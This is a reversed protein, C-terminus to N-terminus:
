LHELPYLDGTKQEKGNIDIYTCYIKGQSLGLLQPFDLDMSKQFDQTVMSEKKLTIKSQGYPVSEGSGLVKHIKTEERYIKNPLEKYYWELVVKEVLVSLSGKNCIVPIYSKSSTGPSTTVQEVVIFPAVRLEFERTMIKAMKRTYVAYYITVIVLVITLIVLAWNAFVM